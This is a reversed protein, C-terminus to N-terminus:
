CLSFLWPCSYLTPLKNSVQLMKDQPEWGLFAPLGSLLMKWATQNEKIPKITCRGWHTQAYTHTHLALRGQLCTLYGKTEQASLISPAAKWQVPPFPCQQCIIEAERWISTSLKQKTDGWSFLFEGMLAAFYFSKCSFIWLVARLKGVVRQKLLPDIPYFSFETVEELHAQQYFRAVWDQQALLIYM